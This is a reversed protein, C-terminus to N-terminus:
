RGSHSEACKRAIQLLRETGSATSFELRRAFAGDSLSRQRVQDSEFEVIAEMIADSSKPEFLIGSREDVIEPLFKWDSCLVPLGVSYSEMIIGSYGEQELYTPFVLAKSNRLIECVDEPDAVGRYEVNSHGIFISEDLDDYFPGYVQLRYEDSLSSFAELLEVIGKNRKLQGVYVYSTATSAHPNLSGAELMPRTTPFWDVHPVGRHSAAKVLAKSQALYVSTHTVAWAALTRRLWPLDTYDMGGFMRFILPRRLLKRIIVAIVGLVSFGNPSFHVTVMDCRKLERFLYSMYAFMGTLRAKPDRRMRGTDFVTLDVEPRNKLDEVLHKLSVVTGSVRADARRASFSGVVAIRFKRDRVPSGSVVDKPM